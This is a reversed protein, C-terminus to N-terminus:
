YPRLLQLNKIGEFHKANRTALVFNRSLVSAAVIMDAFPKEYDRRLEGAAKAIEPILEIIEFNELFDAVHKQKEADKTSKGSYIEVVSVISIYLTHEKPIGFLFDRAADVGRLYDILIDSDVCYNKVSEM